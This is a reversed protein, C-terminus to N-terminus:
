ILKMTAIIKKAAAIDLGCPGMLRYNMKKGIVTLFTRSCLGPEDDSQVVTFSGVKYTISKTGTKSEDRIVDAASKAPEFDLSYQRALCGAGEPCADVYGFVIGNMIDEYPAFKYKDTGWLPNFPLQIELGESTDSYLITTTAPSTNMKGVFKDVVEAQKNYFDQSSILQRNDNPAVPPTIQTSPTEAKESTAVTKAVPKQMEKQENDRVFWKGGAVFALILLAVFGIGLLFGKLGSSQM